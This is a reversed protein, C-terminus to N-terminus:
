VVASDEATGEATGRRGDGNGSEAQRTLMARVDVACADPVAPAHRAAAGKGASRVAM